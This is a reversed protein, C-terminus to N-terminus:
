NPKRKTPARRGKSITKPEEKGLEEKIAEHASKGYVRRTNSDDTPLTVKEFPRPVTASQQSNEEAEAEAERQKEKGGQFFQGSHFGVANSGEGPDEERDEQDAPQRNTDNTKGNARQEEKERDEEPQPLFRDIKLQKLCDTPSRGDKAHEKQLTRKNRKNMHHYIIGTPRM